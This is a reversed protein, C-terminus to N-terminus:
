AALFRRLRKVLRAEAGEGGRGPLSRRWGRRRSRPPVSAVRAWRIPSPSPTLAEPSTDIEKGGEAPYGLALAARGFLTLEAPATLHRDLTKLIRLPNNM